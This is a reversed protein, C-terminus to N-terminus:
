VDFRGVSQCAAFGEGGFEDVTLAPEEDLVWAPRESTRRGGIRCPHRHGLVLGPGVAGGLDPGSALRDRGVDGDCSSVKASMSLFVMEARASTTAERPPVGRCPCISSVASTSSAIFVPPWRAATAGVPVPFDRP